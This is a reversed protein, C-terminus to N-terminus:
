GGSKCEVLEMMVKMSGMADSCNKVMGGCPVDKCTWTKTTITKGGAQMKTQTVKCNYTKGGITVEETGLEKVAVDSKTAVPAGTESYKPFQQTRAPMKQGAMEMAIEVHAHTDDVKVVKWVQKMNNVGKYTCMDGVKAAAWPTAVKGGAATKKEEPAPAPEKKEEPAPAPEKMEEPAPAPEKTEEPAPAPEKKEEPAPAPEKEEGTDCTKKEGAAETGEKEADTDDKGCGTCVLGCAFLGTVMLYWLRNGM